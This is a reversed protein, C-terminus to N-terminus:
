IRGGFLMVAFVIVGVGLWTAFCKPCIKNPTMTNAKGRTITASITRKNHAGGIAAPVTGIGHGHAGLNLGTNHTNNGGLSPATKVDGTDYPARASIGRRTSEQNKPWRHWLNATGHKQGADNTSGWENTLPTAIPDYGQPGGLTSCSHEM